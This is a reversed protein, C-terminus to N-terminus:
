EGQPLWIDLAHPLISVKITASPGLNPYPVFKFPQEGEGALQFDFGPPHVRADVHVPFGNWSIKLEPVRYVEVSDLEHLEETLMGRLYNLYGDRQEERICVIDLLGDSPNADPAFKLRPGVAPTNLAEVLLFEGKVEKDPLYLTTERAFGHKWIDLISQLSRIVSKGKDPDYTALAEAFFGLGAGEMFYDEGWPGQLHGVDFGRSRPSGLRRVIDLPDGEIGLTRCVNNATGLPLPTFAIDKRGILRTIVERVTGDGGASVVVGKANALIPDLDDIATTAKYVPEYGADRLGDQLDEVSAASINGANSNYILTAQM